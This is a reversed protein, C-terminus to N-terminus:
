LQSLNVNKEQLYTTIFKPFAHKALDRAAIKKFQENM